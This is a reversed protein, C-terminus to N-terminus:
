RRGLLALLESLVMATAGWVKEGELDFYPVLRDVGGLTRPEVHLRGPDLLDRVSVELMRAVERPAAVFRPRAATVGVVPHLILGSAAIYLPTLRGMVEVRAAEVGTEEEAERLAAQELSEGAHPRGGPLSVQGGHRPLESARLTLLLSTEGGRPYFLVLAAAPPVGEPMMEPEWGPRPKTALRAQAEPGPLPGELAGLLRERLVVFKM